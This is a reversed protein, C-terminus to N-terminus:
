LGRVAFSFCLEKWSFIFIDSSIMILFMLQELFIISKWAIVLNFHGCGLCVLLFSVLGLLKFLIVVRMMPVLNIKLIFEVLAWGQTFSIKDPFSRYFSMRAPHGHAATAHEIMKRRWNFKLRLIAVINCPIVLM